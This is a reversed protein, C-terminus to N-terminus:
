TFQQVCKVQSDLAVAPLIQAELPWATLKRQDTTVLPTPALLRCSYRLLRDSAGQRGPLLLAGYRGSRRSIAASVIAVFDPVTTSLIDLLERLTRRRDAAQQELKTM